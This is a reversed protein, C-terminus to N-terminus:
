MRGVKRENGNEEKRLEKRRRDEKEREMVKIIREEGGRGEYWKETAM